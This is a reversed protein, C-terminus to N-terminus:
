PAFFAPNMPGQPPSWSFTQQRVAQASLQSLPTSREKYM